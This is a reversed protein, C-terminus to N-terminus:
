HRIGGIAPYSVWGHAGASYTGHAEANHALQFNAKDLTASDFSGYGSCTTGRKILDGSGAAEATAGTAIDGVPKTPALRDLPTFKVDAIGTENNPVALYFGEGRDIDGRVRLGSSFLFETPAGYVTTAFFLTVTSYKM